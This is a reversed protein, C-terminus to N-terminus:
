RRGNSCFASREVDPEGVAPCRKNYRTAIYNTANIHILVAVPPPGSSPGSFRHGGRLGRAAAERFAPFRRLAHRYAALVRCDEGNIPKHRSIM